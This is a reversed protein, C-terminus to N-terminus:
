FIQVKLYDAFPVSLPTHCKGESGRIMKFAPQEAVYPEVIGFIGIEEGKETHVLIDEIGDNDEDSFTVKPYKGGCLPGSIAQGHIDRILHVYHYQGPEDAPDYWDFAVGYKDLPNRELFMVYLLVSVLIGVFYVHKTYSLVFPKERRRVAIFNTLRRLILTLFITYPSVVFILFSVAEAREINHLHYTASIYSMWGLHIVFWVSWLYGGIALFIPYRQINMDEVNKDPPSTVKEGYILTVVGWIGWIILIIYLLITMLFALMMADIKWAVLQVGVLYSLLFSLTNGLFIISVIKLFLYCSKEPKEQPLIGLRLIGYVGLTEMFIVMGEVMFAARIFFPADFMLYQRFLGYNLVNMGIM